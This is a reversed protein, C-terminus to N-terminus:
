FSAAFPDEVAVTALVNLLNPKPRTPPEPAWDPTGPPDSQAAAPASGLLKRERNIWGRASFAGMLADRFDADSMIPVGLRKADVQKKTQRSPNVAVVLDTRHDVEDLVHGGAAQIVSYVESRSAGFTKGTLVINLNALSGPQYSIAM